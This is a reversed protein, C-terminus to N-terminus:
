DKFPLEMRKFIALWQEVPQGGSVRGRKDITFNPVGGVHRNQECERQVKDSLETGNLFKRAEDESLGADKAASILLEPDSINGNLEFNQRFVEEVVANHKALGFKKSWEVLRHSLFSNGMLGDYAWTIPPTCAKGVAEM